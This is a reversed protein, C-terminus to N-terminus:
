KKKLGIHEAHIREIGRISVCVEKREAVCLMKQACGEVAVESFTGSLADRFVIGETHIKHLAFLECEFVRRVDEDRRGSELWEYSYTCQRKQSTNDEISKNTNSSM